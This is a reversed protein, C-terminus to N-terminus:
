SSPEPNDRINSNQGYGQTREGLGCWSKEIISPILYRSRVKGSIQNHRGNNRPSALPKEKVLAKKLGIRLGGDRTRGETAQRTLLQTPGRARSNGTWVPKGNRRVYFVGGPVELCFVPENYNKIIQETQANQTKTHSHNVAPNNKSKIIALRWIDYDSKVNPNVLMVENGTKSHLYKDCAWGCHLALQMINDSLKISSTYYVISSGDGLALAKLLLRSQHSSLNWVWDPLFKDSDKMNFQKLYSYLQKNKIIIKNDEQRYEYGLKIIASVLLSTEFQQNLSIIIQSKENIILGESFWMGFLTLWSDMDMTKEFYITGNKGIVSPLVFQYDNTDWIADKKYKRHKGIIDKALEFDHDQWQNKHDYQKSVWMRHNPTVLLDLQQSKIHYMDGKYNPYNLIKIPKQYVLKGDVLTAIKDNTNLQHNFKWGDLTLVEHDLSLCHAKDGVMQRLRQYYTPGIFIKVDMKQGIMGNYMTENGWEEYGAAVLEDNIKFLNVGTFPTADGFVGKIACVKGLLCEILQGITMRKPMCNPNIIIDPVLGSKTFPMDARHIKFGVTGKQGARSSFKDGVKPIRESRVRLRIIPYGDSNVETIVKDIAGPVLSKYITSGDKFPKEDEKTTPKPNVMGIIVDGDRIVTEVKAYGEESLKEYNADRLNDVKNRDPKMFIGTQSSAPNKKIVEFYKKLAQARMFGLQIASENMLLSDEQNVLKKM